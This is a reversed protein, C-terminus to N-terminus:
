MEDDLVQIAREPCARVGRLAVAELGPPVKVIGALRVFGTNEDLRYVEPAVAACRAHGSCRNANLAIRM